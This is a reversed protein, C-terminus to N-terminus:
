GAWGVVLPIAWPRVADTIPKAGEGAPSAPTFGAITGLFFRGALDLAVFFLAAGLGSIVGILAGLIVWKRLYAATRVRRRVAYRIAAGNM